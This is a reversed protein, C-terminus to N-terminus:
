EGIVPVPVPDLHELANITFQELTAMTRLNDKEESWFNKRRASLLKQIDSKTVLCTSDFTFENGQFSNTASLHINKWSLCSSAEEVKHDVLRQNEASYLFLHVVSISAVHHRLYCQRRAFM